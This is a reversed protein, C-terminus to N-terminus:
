ASRKGAFVLGLGALVAVIAAVTPIWVTHHETANVQLPGADLVNHTENWGFHGMVLAAIGAVVLLVGVIAIPKMHREM